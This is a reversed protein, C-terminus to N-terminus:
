RVRDAHSRSRLAGAPPRHLSRTMASWSPRQHAAVNDEVALQHIEFEEAVSRIEADPRDLGIWGMEMQSRLMEYTSELTSPSGLRTGNVYIGNNVVPAAGEEPDRPFTGPRQGSM